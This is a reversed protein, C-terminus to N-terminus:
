GPVPVFEVIVFPLSKGNRVSGNLRAQVFSQVGPSEEAGTLLIDDARAPLNCLLGTLVLCLGALLRGLTPTKRSPRYQM